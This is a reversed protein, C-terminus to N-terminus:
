AGSIKGVRAAIFKTIRKEFNCFGVGNGNEMSDRVVVREVKQEGRASWVVNEEEAEECYGFSVLFLVLVVNFKKV